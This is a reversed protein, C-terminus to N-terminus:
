KEKRINSIRIAQIEDNWIENMKVGRFIGENSTTQFEDSGLYKIFTDYMLPTEDINSKFMLCIQEKDSKKFYKTKCFYGQIHNQPIDDNLISDFLIGQSNDATENLSLLKIVRFLSEEKKVKVVEIDFWTNLPIDVSTVKEKPNNRQPKQSSLTKSLWGFCIDVNFWLSDLGEEKGNLLILDYNHGNDYILSQSHMRVGMMDMIFYEHDTNVVYMAHDKSRGDGSGALVQSLMLGRYYNEEIDSIETGYVQNAYNQVLTKYYYVHPDAPYKKIYADTHSLFKKVDAPTLTDQRMMKLMADMNDDSGYPGYNKQYAQGYYLAEYDGYNLTTDFEALRKVLKPYYHPSSKTNVESKIKELDPPNSWSDEQAPLSGAMLLITVMILIKKM